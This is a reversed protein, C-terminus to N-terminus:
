LRHARGSENGSQQSTKEFYQEAAKASNTEESKVEWNLYVSPTDNELCVPILEHKGHEGLLHVAHM